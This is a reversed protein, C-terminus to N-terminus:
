QDTEDLAGSALRLWSMHNRRLYEAFREKRWHPKGNEDIEYCGFPRDLETVLGTRMGDWHQRLQTFKLGDVPVGRRGQQAACWQGKARFMAHPLSRITPVIHPLMRALARVDDECYALIERREQVSFPPGELIRDRMAEKRALDITDELFYQLAGGISYFGKE